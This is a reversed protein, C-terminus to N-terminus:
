NTTKLSYKADSKFPDFIAPFVPCPMAVDPSPFNLNPHVYFYVLITLNFVLM